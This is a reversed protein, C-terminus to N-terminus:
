PVPEAASAFYADRYRVEPASKASKPLTVKVTLKHFTNDLGDADPVFGVQYRGVISGLVKELAAGYDSGTVNVTEGGTRQSYYEVARYTGDRGQAGPKIYRPDVVPAAGVLWHAWFGSLKKLLSVTVEEKESFDATQTAMRNPTLNNDDSVVVFVRSAGMARDSMQRVGSRVAMALSQGSRCGTAGGELGKFGGNEAVKPCWSLEAQHLLAVQDTTITSLADLVPGRDTTLPQITKPEGEFTMVGVQDAARLNSLAKSLSDRLIKVNPSTWQRIDVLLILALPRVSDGHSFQTIKQPRARDMVQFSEATLGDIPSGTRRGTVSIDLTVLRSNSHFTPLDPTQCLLNLPSIAAFLFVKRFTV